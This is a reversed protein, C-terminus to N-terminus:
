KRVQSVAPSIECVITGATGVTGKYSGATGVNRGPPTVQGGPRDLAEDTLEDDDFSIHANTMQQEKDRTGLLFESLLVSIM